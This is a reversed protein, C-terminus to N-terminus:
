FLNDIEDHLGKRLDQPPEQRPGAIMKQLVPKISGSIKKAWFRIAGIPAKNDFIVALLVLPDVLSIHINTEMGQHFTLTFESEGLLKALENTASFVGAALASVAIASEETVAGSKALLEGSKNLLIIDRAQSDVLYQAFLGDITDIDEKTIVLSSLQGEM